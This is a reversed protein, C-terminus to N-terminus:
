GPRPGCEPCPAGRALGRLDYGCTPCRDSRRRFRSRVARFARGAAFVLTAYLVADAALGLPLVQLPLLGAALVGGNMTPRIWGPLRAAHVTPEGLVAGAASMSELCPVPWGATLHSVTDGDRIHSGSDLSGFEFERGFSRQVMTTLQHPQEGDINGLTMRRLLRTRREVHADDTEFSSENALTEWPSASNARVSVGYRESHPLVRPWACCAAAVVFSLAGGGVLHLAALLIARRAGM